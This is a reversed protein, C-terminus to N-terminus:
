KSPSDVYEALMRFFSGFLGALVMAKFGSFHVPLSYGEYLNSFDGKFVARSIFLLTYGIFPLLLLIVASLGFYLVVKKKMLYEPTVWLFFLYYVAMWFLTAIVNGTFQDVPKGGFLPVIMLLCAVVWTATHLGTSLKSKM